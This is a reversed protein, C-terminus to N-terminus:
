DHKANQTLIDLYAHYAATTWAKTTEMALHELMVLRALMEPGTDLRPPWRTQSELGGAVRLALTPRPSGCFIGEPIFRLSGCTAPYEPDLQAIGCRHPESPLVSDLRTRVKKSLRCAPSRLGFYFRRATKKQNNTLCRWGILLSCDRLFERRHGVRWSDVQLTVSIV